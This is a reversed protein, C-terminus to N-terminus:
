LPQSSGYLAYIHELGSRLMQGHFVSAPDYAVATRTCASVEQDAYSCLARMNPQHLCAGDKQWGCGIRSKLSLSQQLARTNPM